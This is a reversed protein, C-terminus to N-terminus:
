KVLGLHRGGADLQFRYSNAGTPEVTFAAKVPQGAPPTVEIEYGGHYGRFNLTGDLAVTGNTTTRWPRPDGVIVDVAPHSFAVMEVLRCYEAQLAPTWQAHRRVPGEIWGDAPAAIETVHIRVGEKAFADFLEYLLQPAAWVGWPQRCRLAVFDLGSIRRVDELGRRTDLQDLRPADSLGLKIQPFKGRLAGVLNTAYNIFVGQDTLQWYEVRDAYRTVLDLAHKVLRQPDPKASFWAPAFGALSSFETTGGPRLAQELEAYQRQGDQPEINRWWGTVVRCDFGAWNGTQTVRYDADYLPRGAADLIQLRVNSRRHKEINPRVVETLFREQEALPDAAVVPEPAVEPRYVAWHQNRYLLMLKRPPEAAVVLHSATFKEALTLLDGDTLQSLSRGQVLLRKGDPALRLGPQLLNMREWWPRAFASSFFLQTGDRWEGVIARQSHVRFGNMQAPTLFLADQPTHDRAWTQVDVWAPENGAEPRHLALTPRVALVFDITRWAALSVLVASGALAAQQWLLRRNALAAVTAVVVAVPLLGLWPPLALCLFTLTAPIFELRNRWGRACGAAVCLLALILLFRSSRFLQARIFLPNPWIETFLIGAVFLVMVGGTLLLTKRLQPGPNLSLAVGALALILLFRPVDPEGPRWWTFPFSHHASRVHMLQLWTADFHERHLLMPVLTPLALLLFVAVLGALKRLPVSCVAWASLVLLLQGAELAHINFSLGALAFALFPRNHYLLALAALTLPFVAWTHTFGTSYLTQEALAQHQGALLLLCGIGAVRDSQFMGRALAVVALFVGTTALLHLGAYLTPLAVVPLAQAVVRYFLTPYRELTTTVMVDRAFLTADHLRLLFPVQISQNGVGLEYGAWWMQLAALVLCAAGWRWWPQLRATAANAQVPM